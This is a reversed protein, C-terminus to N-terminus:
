ERIAGVAMLLTPKQKLGQGLHIEVDDPNRLHIFTLHAMSDRVFQVEAPDRNVLFIPSLGLLTLAYAASRTTAGGGVILGAGFGKPYCTSPSISHSLFQSRLGNILSNRVGLVVVCTLNSELSIIYLLSSDTNQGVLKPIGSPGTSVKVITNCADTIKSEPSVEDLFPIIAAKIPM